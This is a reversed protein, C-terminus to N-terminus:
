RAGRDTAQMPPPGLIADRASPGAPRDAPAFFLVYLALLAAAKFVLAATIERALPQRFM